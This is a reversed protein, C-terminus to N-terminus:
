DGDTEANTEQELDGSKDDREIDEVAFADLVETSEASDNM